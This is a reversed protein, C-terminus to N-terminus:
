RPGQYRLELADAACEHIEVGALDQRIYQGSYWLFPRYLKMDGDGVTLKLRDRCVASLSFGIGSFSESSWSSSRGEDAPSSALASVVAWVASDECVSSRGEPVGSFTDRWTVSGSRLTMLAVTIVQKATM